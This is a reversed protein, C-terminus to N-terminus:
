LAFAGSAYGRAINLRLPFNQQGSAQKWERCESLHDPTTLFDDTDQKNRGTRVSMVQLWLKFKGYTTDDSVHTHIGLYSPVSM